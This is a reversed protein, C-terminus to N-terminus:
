VLTAAENTYLISERTLLNGYLVIDSSGSVSSPRMHGVDVM